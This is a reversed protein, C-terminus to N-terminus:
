LLQSYYEYLKKGTSKIDHKDIAWSLARQKYKDITNPSNILELLKEEITNTDISIFPHNKYFDHCEPNMETMCCLGLGMSEVSNMGYGWGGHNGVQDIIIDCTSKLRLVEQNPMNEILVFEINTNQSALRKGVEIIKESGKYYRNTPSHCIRIINQTKKIVTKTNILIPLFLYEMKPHLSLLDLESTFNIKSLSNLPELVGRTRLDQGHYTCIIPKGLKAVQKAFSCDRYFDLGWEFHYIDYDLLNLKQLKKTIIKKWLRDRFKFFLKEYHKSIEWKPPYGAKISYEGNKGYKNYYYVSRLKRYLYGTSILPLELCIGPDFNNATKYFTIFDCENGQSQHFKKWASLTGVTNEPSIYLIKM